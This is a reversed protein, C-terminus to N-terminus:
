IVLTMFIKDLPLRTTAHPRVSMVVSVSAEGLKAFTGLFAHHLQNLYQAVLRLTSPEIESPVMQIKYNKWRV